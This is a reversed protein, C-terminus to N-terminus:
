ACSALWGVCLSMKGLLAVANGRDTTLKSVHFFFKRYSQILLWALM